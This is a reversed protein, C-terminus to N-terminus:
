ENSKEEANDSKVEIKNGSEDVVEYYLIKWRDEEKLFYFMMYVKSTQKKQSYLYSSILTKGEVNDPTVFTKETESSNVLYNSM